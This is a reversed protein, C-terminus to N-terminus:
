NRTTAADLQREIADLVADPEALHDSDFRTDFLGRDLVLEGERLRVRDISEWPVFSATYPRQKVLGADHLRLEPSVGWSVLWRGEVICSGVWLLGLTAWFLATLWNGGIANLGVMWVWLIFLLADLGTSQPPSWAWRTSPEDTTAADVYQNRAVISLVYGVLLVAAAAGLAVASDVTGFRGVSLGVIAFPVSPVFLLFRRWTTRGIRAALKRDRSALVAGIALGLLFGILSTGAVVISSPEPLSVTTIGDAAATTLSAIGAVVVGCYLATGFLVSRGPDRDGIPVPNSQM